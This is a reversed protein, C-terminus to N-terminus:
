YWHDTFVNLIVPTQTRFLCVVRNTSVSLDM